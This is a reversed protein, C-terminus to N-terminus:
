QAKLTGVAVPLVQLSGDAMLLRSSAGDVTLPLVSGPSLTTGRLSVAVRLLPGRLPKPQALGKEAMVVSLTDPGKVVKYIPVGAGLDLVSGPSVWAGTGEEAPDWAMQSPDLKFTVCLGCGPDAGMGWLDLVLHNDRSLQGNRRLQFSGGAPDAYGLGSAVKSGGPLSTNSPGLPSAGGGCGIWGVLTVFALLSRISMM